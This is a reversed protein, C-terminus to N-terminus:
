TEDVQEGLPIVQRVLCELAREMGAQFTLEEQTPPTRFSLRVLKIDDEILEICRDITILDNETTM